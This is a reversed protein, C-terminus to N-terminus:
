VTCPVDCQKKYLIAGVVIMQLNSICSDIYDGVVERVPYTPPLM